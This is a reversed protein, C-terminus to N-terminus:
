GLDWVIVQGRSGGAVGCLGDPTFSLRMVGGIDWQYMKSLSWTQTDYVRIGDDYGVYLARGELDFAACLAMKDPVTNATKSKRATGLITQRRKSAMDYILVQNYAVVALLQGDPSFHLSDLRTRRTSFTLHSKRSELDWLCVVSSSRRSELSRAVTALYRGDRTMDPWAGDFELRSPKRVEISFSELTRGSSLEFVLIRRQGTVEGSGYIRSGDPSVFVLGNLQVGVNRVLTFSPLSFLQIPQSVSALVLGTGDPTFALNLTHGDLRAAPQNSVSHLDWVSVMGVFPAPNHHVAAIWRGDGSVQLGVVASDNGSLVRM